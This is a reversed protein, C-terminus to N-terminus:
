GGLHRPKRGPDGSGLSVRQDPGLNKQLEGLAIILALRANSKAERQASGRVSSRVTVTSLTLLGIAVVALLALISVTIVIAFGRPARSPRESAQGWSIKM